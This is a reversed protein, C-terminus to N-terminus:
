SQFFILVGWSSVSNVHSSGEQHEAEEGANPFGYVDVVVCVWETKLFGLASLKKLDHSNLEVIIKSSPDCYCCLLLKQILSVM